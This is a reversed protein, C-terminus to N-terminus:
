SPIYHGWIWIVSWHTSQVPLMRYWAFYGNREVMMLHTHRESTHHTDVWETVM